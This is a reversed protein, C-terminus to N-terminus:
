LRIIKAISSANGSSLKIYYIGSNVKNGNIDRGDWELKYVRDKEMKLHIGKTHILQGYNNFVELQSAGTETSKFQINIHDTFPNPFATISLNGKSTEDFSMSELQVKTCNM